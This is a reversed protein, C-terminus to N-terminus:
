AHLREKNLVKKAAEEARTINEQSDELNEANSKTIKSDLTVRLVAIRGGENEVYDFIAKLKEGM